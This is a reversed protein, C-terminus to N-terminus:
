NVGTYGREGFNLELYAVSILYKVKYNDYNLINLDSSVLYENNKNM